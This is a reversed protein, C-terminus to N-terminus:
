SLIHGSDQLFHLLPLLPLGLITHHNGHIEKFLTIGNREIQYLGSSAISEEPMNELLHDLYENSFQRMVLIATDCCQWLVVQNQVVTIASHLKHAKGCLSTLQQHAEAKSKPRHIIKENHEMTQDCGIVLAKPHKKSVAAAKKLALDQAIQKPSKQAQEDPTEDYHSVITSFQLGAKRLLQQRIPSQSALILM